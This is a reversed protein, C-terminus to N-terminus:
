KAKRQEQKKKAWRARQARQISLRGAASLTGKKKPATRPHQGGAYAGAVEIFSKRLQTLKNIQETLQRITDQYSMAGSEIM